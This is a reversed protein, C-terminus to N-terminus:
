IRGLIKNYLISFYEYVIEKKNLSKEFFNNKKYLNVNKYIHVKFDNNKKSIIKSARYTNFPSTIFTFEQIQDKKLTSFILNVAEDLSKYEEYIVIINEKKVSESILLSELIKQDPLYQLRGYLYIRTDTKGNFKDLYSIVDNYRMKYSNNVYNFGQYGSVIVLAETKKDPDSYIIKQGLYFFLPTYYIVFYFLIFILILKKLKREFEKYLNSFMLKISRCFVGLIFFYFFNYSKIKFFTNSLSNIIKNFEEIKNSTVSFKARTITVFIKSHYIFNKNITQFLDMWLNLDERINRDLNFSNKNIIKRSILVSSIIIPNYMYLWYYGKQNIKNLFFKQMLIRLINIFFSSKKKSGEIQYNAATFSILNNKINTIQYYLKDPYWYDDADLFAVYDGKSKSIGLNRTGSGSGHTKKTIFYSIRKDKKVFNKIIKISSDTSCDDVIILEFNKYTQNLVSNISRILFRSCNYNTLVVSIFNNNNSM